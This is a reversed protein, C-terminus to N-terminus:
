PEGAHSASATPPQALAPRWLPRDEERHRHPDSHPADKRERHAQEPFSGSLPGARISSRVRRSVPARHEHLGPSGSLLRHMALVPWSTFRYVVARAKPSHLPGPKQLAYTFRAGNALWNAHGRAATASPRGERLRGHAREPVANPPQQLALGVCNAPKAMTRHLGRKRKRENRQTTGRPCAEREGNSGHDGDDNQDGLAQRRLVRSKWYPPGRGPSRGPAEILEGAAALYRAISAPNKVVALLKMRGQCSPCTLVDVAFTRELLEAWPRYGSKRVRKEPEEDDRAPPPTPTGRPSAARQHALAM